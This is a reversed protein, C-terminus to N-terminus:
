QALPALLHQFLWAVAPVCVGDGILNHAATVGAPLRYTEPLGMLRAAERPTIKRAHMGLDDAVILTQVSSGGKACRLANALDFRIEACQAPRGQFNVSGVVIEGPRRSRVAADLKARHEPAMLELVRALDAPEGRVPELVDCLTTVRTPSGDAAEVM